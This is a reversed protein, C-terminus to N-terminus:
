LLHRNMGGLLPWHNGTTTVSAATGFDIDIGQYSTNKLGWLQNFSPDNACNTSFNFMFAPDIEEFHGTEYFYNTADVSNGLTSSRISLICWLPMFPVQKIIQVNQQAAVKKLLTTDKEEKLKLYFIDSTGIPSLTDGREFFPLVYKVQKNEKLFEVAESYEQMVPTSKFKLKIIGQTQKNNIQEINFKQLLQNSDFSKLLEDDAIVHVYNRNLTLNVKQGKYYYSMQAHLNVFSLFFLLCLLNVKKKM